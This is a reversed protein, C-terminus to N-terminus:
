TSPCRFDSLIKRGFPHDLSASRLQLVVEVDEFGLTLWYGEGNPAPVLRGQEMFRFWAWPGEASRVLTRGDILTVAMRLQSGLARTPWTFLSPRIPGHAYNLQLEDLTLRVQAIREDMSVPSLEFDVRAVDSAAPFFARRIQEARRFQAAVAGELLTVDPHSRRFDQLLGAPAFLRNFDALSLQERAQRDFPYRQALLRSCEPGLQLNLHAGVTAVTKQQLHQRGVSVIDAFLPHLMPPLSDIQRKLQELADVPPSPLGMALAQERAKLYVAAQALAERLAELAAASGESLQQLAVFHRNVPHEEAALTAPLAKALDSSFGSALSSVQQRARDVLRQPVQPIDLRTERGAARLLSFLASDARSLRELRLALSEPQDLGVLQLDAFFSEWYRIYDQAYLASVEDHLTLADLRLGEGMVWEEEKLVEAVLLPLRVRLQEHGKPSFRAPVGRNLPEGSRRALSLLGESGSVAVVSFDEADASALMASLRAYLRQQQPERRLERRVQEVWQPDVSLVPGTALLPILAHVHVQLQERQEPALSQGLDGRVRASLWDEFAASEFRGQGGLMLYFRLREQRESHPEDPVSRQLTQVVGPLLEDLLTRQYLSRTQDLLRRYESLWFGPVWGGGSPPYALNRFRELRELLASTVSTGTASAPVQELLVQQEALWQLQRTQQWYSNGFLTALLIVLTGAGLAPLWRGGGAVSPLFGRWRAHRRSQQLCRVLRQSAARIGPEVRLHGSCRLSQLHVQAVRPQEFFATQLYPQLVEGFQRWLRPFGYLQVRASTQAERQLREPLGDQVTAFLGVLRGALGALNQRNRGQVFGLALDRAEAPLAQLSAEFGPLRGCHTVMVQVPLGQGFEAALEELRARLILAQADRAAPALRLLHVANLVLVAGAVGLGHRRSRKLEDLLCRWLGTCGPDAQTLLAASVTMVSFAGIRGLHLDDPPSEDGPRARRGKEGMLGRKGAGAAGLLLFVPGSANAQSELCWRELRERLRRERTCPPNLEQLASQAAEVGLLERRKRRRRAWGFFILGGLYLPVLLLWQQWDHALPAVGDVSLRPGHDRVLWTLLYLGVVLPLARLLNKLLRLLM